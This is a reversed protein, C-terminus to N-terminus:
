QASSGLAARDVDGLLFFSGCVCVIDAQAAQAIANQLARNVDPQQEAHPHPQSQQGLLESLVRALENVPAARPHAAQSLTIRSAVPALVRLMARADKDSSAGFILHLNASPSQSKLGELERALVQAGDPNNAGDLIVTPNRRAIELRGAVELALPAEDVRWGMQHAFALQAARALHWNAKQFAPSQPPLARSEERARRAWGECTSSGKDLSNLPCLHAGIGSCHDAFVELVQPKSEATLLTRNPRAIHIKDSAIAELTSGLRDCHDLAVHTIVSVLPDLANTADWRGGLGVEVVAADVQQEAFHQLGLLTLVEFETPQGHEGRAVEDLMPLVHQFLAELESDAIAGGLPEGQNSTGLVRIRENWQHLHPSTYLGIRRSNGVLMQALFQATSGKGNTGGVLVVPFPSQGREDLVQARVLLERIRELGPRIGFRQVSALYDLFQPM